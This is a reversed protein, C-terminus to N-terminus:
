EAIGVHQTATGPGAAAAHQMAGTAIEEFRMAPIYKASKSGALWLSIWPKDDVNGYRKSCIVGPAM